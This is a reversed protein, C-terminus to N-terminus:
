NFLNLYTSVIARYRSKPAARSLSPSLAPHHRSLVTQCMQVAVSQSQSINIHCRSPQPSSPVTNM